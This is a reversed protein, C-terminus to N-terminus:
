NDERLIKFVDDNIYVQNKEFSISTLNNLNVRKDIIKRKESWVYIIPEHFMIRLQKGKSLLGQTDNYIFYDNPKNNTLEKFRNILYITDEQIEIDCIETFLVPIGSGNIQLIAKKQGTESKTFVISIGAFGFSDDFWTKNAIKEFIDCDFVPLIQCSLLLFTTTIKIM